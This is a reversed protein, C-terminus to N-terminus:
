GQFRMWWEADLRTLFADGQHIAALIEPDRSHMLTWPGERRFLCHRDSLQQIHAPDLRGRLAIAGQRWADEFLRQLVHDFAGDAAVM